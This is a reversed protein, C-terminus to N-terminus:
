SRDKPHIRASRRIMVSWAVPRLGAFGYGHTPLALRAPRAFVWHFLPTGGVSVPHICCQGHMQHVDARVTFASLAGTVAAATHPKHRVAHSATRAAARLHAANRQPDAPSQGGGPRHPTSFFRPEREVILDTNADLDIKASRMCTLGIQQIQSGSQPTKRPLSGVKSGQCFRRAPDGEM